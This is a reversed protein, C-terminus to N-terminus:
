AHLTSLDTVVMVASYFGQGEAHQVTTTTRRHRRIYHSSTTTSSQKSSTFLLLAVRHCHTIKVDFTPWSLASSVQSKADFEASSQRKIDPRAIGAIVAPQRNKVPRFATVITLAQKQRVVAPMLLHAYIYILPHHYLTFYNISASAPAFLLTFFTFYNISASAPAFLLTFLLLTNPNVHEASIGWVRGSWAPFNASPAITGRWAIAFRM